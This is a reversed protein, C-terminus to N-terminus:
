NIDVNFLLLVNDEIVSSVNLNPFLICWLIWDTQLTETNLFHLSFLNFKVQPRVAWRSLQAHASDTKVDLTISKIM